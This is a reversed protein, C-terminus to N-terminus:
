ISHPPIPVQIVSKFALLMALCRANGGAISGNAYQLGLQLIAPHVKSAVLSEEFVNEITIAQVLM